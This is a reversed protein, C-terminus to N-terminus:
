IDMLNEEIVVSTILIRINREKTMFFVHINIKDSGKKSQVVKCIEDVEYIEHME